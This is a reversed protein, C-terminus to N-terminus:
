ALIDPDKSIEKYISDSVTGDKRCDFTKLQLETYPLELEQLYKKLTVEHMLDFKNLPQKSCPISDAQNTYRGVYAIYKINKTNKSFLSSKFTYLVGAAIILLAIASILFRKHTFFAKM